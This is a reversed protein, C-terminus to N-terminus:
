ILNKYLTRSNIRGDLIQSPLNPSFEKRFSDLLLNFDTFDPDRFDILRKTASLPGLLGAPEVTHQEMFEYYKEIFIKMKPHDATIFEPVLTEILTSVDQREKIKKEYAM